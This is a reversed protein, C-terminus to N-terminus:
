DAFPVMRAEIRVQYVHDQHCDWPLLEPEAREAAEESPYPGFQQSELHEGTKFNKGEIVIWYSLSQTVSM